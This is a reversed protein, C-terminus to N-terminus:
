KKRWLFIKDKPKLIFPLKLGGKEGRKLENVFAHNIQIDNVTAFSAPTTKGM